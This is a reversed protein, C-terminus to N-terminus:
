GVFRANDPMRVRFTAPIEGNHWLDFTEVQRGDLFEILHRQGGFGNCRGGAAKSGITYHHGDIRVHKPKESNELFYSWFDCSCSDKECKECEM